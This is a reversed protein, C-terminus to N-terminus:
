KPCRLTGYREVAHGFRVMWCSIDIGDAYLRGITRRYRDTGRREIQIRRGKLVGALALRSREGAAYDCDRSDRRVDRCAPSGRLEPADIAALRIREPGARVTDGDHVATITIAVASAILLNLM